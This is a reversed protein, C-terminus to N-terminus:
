RVRIANFASMVPVRSSNLVPTDDKYDFKKDGNDSHIMAYYVSGEETNRLLNVEGKEYTGANYRHAGLINGPKGNNDEYIVIWGNKALTFEGIDVRLGALQDNVTISNASKQFSAENIDVNKADKRSAVENETNLKKDKSTNYNNNWLYFIGFGVLLGILFSIILNQRTYYKTEM